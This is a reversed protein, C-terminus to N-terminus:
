KQNRAECAAARDRDAMLGILDILSGCEPFLFVLIESGICGDAGADGLIRM